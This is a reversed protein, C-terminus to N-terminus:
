WFFNCRPGTIIVSHGDGCSCWWRTAAVWWSRYGWDCIRRGRRIYCSWGEPNWQIGQMSHWHIILSFGLSSLVGRQELLRPGQEQESSNLAHMLWIGINKAAMANLMFRVSFQEPESPSIISLFLAVSVMLAVRACLQITTRCPTSHVIM